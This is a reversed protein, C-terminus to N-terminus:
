LFVGGLWSDRLQDWHGKTQLLLALDCIPANINCTQPSWWTTAQTTSEIESFDMSGAKNGSKFCEETLEASKPIAGVYAQVADYKHRQHLVSHKLVQAMGVQPKRCTNGGRPQKMNKMVGNMDECAQSATIGSFREKVM